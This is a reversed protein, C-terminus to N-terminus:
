SKKKFISVSYNVVEYLLYLPSKFDEDSTINKNPISLGKSFLITYPNIGPINNLTEDVDEIKETIYVIGKKIIIHSFYYESNVDKTIVSVCCDGTDYRNIIMKLDNDYEYEYPMKIPITDNRLTNLFIEAVENTTKEKISIM